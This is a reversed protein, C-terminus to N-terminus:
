RKTRAQQRAAELNMIEAVEYETVLADPVARLRVVSPFHGMRGHLEVLVLAAAYNLSPLLVLWPEGSWQEPRVDLHDIVDTVQPALAQTLDFQVRAEVVQELARGTIRELQERQSSTFPYALNLLNM